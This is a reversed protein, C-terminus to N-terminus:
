GRLEGLVVRAIRDAVGPTGLRARLPSLAERAASWSEETGVQSLFDDAVKRASSRRMFVREPVARRGLVLNVLAFYPATLVCPKFAREVPDLRYTVAMPALAVGLEATATGSCAIAGLLPGEELLPGTSFRLSAPRRRAGKAAQEFADEDEARALRVVFRVGPLADEVRAAAELMPAAHRRIERRRSGPWVEVVAGAPDPRRKHTRPEPLPAEFLPNGVYLTRIRSREFLAPEFPYAALLLDVARRWRWIRWPAHAWLQPAVLHVTRVGRKRAWRALRANLGPFDVTLLLDPPRERWRALTRACIGWWTSLTSAVGWYGFAAHRTLDEHVHTGAAESAAGALGEVEVGPAAARLARLVGALLRDGSEEGAVVFV